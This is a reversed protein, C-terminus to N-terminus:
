VLRFTGPHLGAIITGLFTYNACNNKTTKFTFSYVTNSQTKMFECASLTHNLLGKPQPITTLDLCILKLDITLGEYKSYGTILM